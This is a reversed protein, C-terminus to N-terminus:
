EAAAFDIAGAHVYGVTGDSRQVLWYETAQMVTRLSEGTPLALTYGTPQMNADVVALQTGMPAIVTVTLEAFGSGADIEQDYAGSLAQSVEPAASPAPAPEPEAAEEPDPQNETVAATPSDAPPAPPAAEDSALAALVLLLGIMLVGGAGCGIMISSPSFSKAGGPAPPPAAPPTERRAPPPAKPPVPAAGERCLAALSEKVKRWGPHDPEGGWGSLSACQIQNFPLPPIVGHSAVQILKKQNRAVDAEARVWESQVATESWVVVAARAESIKATIVDGYSLHPPLDQDWWVQYGEETIKRALMAVQAQDARSYSIFVDVM